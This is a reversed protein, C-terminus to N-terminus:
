FNYRFIIQLGVDGLSKGLSKPDSGGTLSGGIWELVETEVTKGRMDSHGEIPGRRQLSCVGVPVQIQLGLGKDPGVAPGIIGVVFALSRNM